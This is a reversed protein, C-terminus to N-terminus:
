CATVDDWAQRTAWAEVLSWSSPTDDNIAAALLTIAAHTWRGHKFINGYGTRLLLPWEGLDSM